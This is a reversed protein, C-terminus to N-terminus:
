MLDFSIQYPQKNIIKRDFINYEVNICEKEDLAHIINNAVREVVTITVSNGAQKYLQSDSINKPLIIDPYGQFKFCERPTLKRIGFDDKILPVNNGGTGMNATLTPCVKSKNERVYIRRLQYITEQKEISEQLMKYHKSNEKYYYKDDQKENFNIIDSIKYTLPIHNPFKFKDFFNKNRFGVIYIRERNQPINGYNMSNLVKYKVYYGSQKLAKLIIQFTKGKDHSTLNKVNELLFVKPRKENIIRLTEFFLNGRDDNFGKQYGAISFAQCPFGATLIDIDPIHDSEICHIDGQILKTTKMNSRYTECAFKDIENAWIIDAGAKEFGKCIGGVGAFLSAVTYKMDM